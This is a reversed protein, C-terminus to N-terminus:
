PNVNIFQTETTETSAKIPNFDWQTGAPIIPDAKFPYDPFLDNIVEKGYTELINSMKMEDSGAALTASMLKLLLASNLTTWAEPQYNLIKFEIPYDKPKLNNIYANVGDSYAQIAQHSKPDKKSEELMREAGYLMGMRRQYRDLEIAKKGVIESLRGAAYRSQFDM